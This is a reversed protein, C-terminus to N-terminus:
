RGAEDRGRKRNKNDNIRDLEEITSFKAERLLDKLENTYGLESALAIFSLLSITHKTEFKTITPVPVLSSRSLAARTLGKELRRKKLSTALTCAIEDPTESDFTYM